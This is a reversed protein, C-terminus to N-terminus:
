SKFLKPSISLIKSIIDKGRNTLSIQVEVDNWQDDDLPCVEWKPEGGVRRRRSSECVFLIFFNRLQNPDFNLHPNPLQNTGIRIPAGSIANGRNFLMLKQLFHM